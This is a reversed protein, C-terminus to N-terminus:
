AVNYIYAKKARVDLTMLEPIEVDGVGYVAPIKKNQAMALVHSFIVNHRVIVAKVGELTLDPDIDEDVILVDNVSVNQVLGKSFGTAEIAGKPTIRDENAESPLNRLPKLQVIYVLHDETVVFEIQVPFGCVRGLQNLTQRIAQDQEMTVAAAHTFSGSTIADHSSAAAYHCDEEGMWHGVGTLVGQVSQQYFWSGFKWDKENLADWNRRMDAEAQYFDSPKDGLGFYSELVGPMSHSPSSRLSDAGPFWYQDVKPTLFGAMKALHLYAYKAGCRRTFNYHHALIQIMYKEDDDRFSGTFGDIIDRLHFLANFQADTIRYLNGEEPLRSFDLNRLADTTGFGLHGSTFPIVRMREPESGLEVMHGNADTLGLRKLFPFLYLHEQPACEVITGSELIVGSPYTPWEFTTEGREQAALFEEITFVNYDSQNRLVWEPSIVESLEEVSFYKLLVQLDESMKIYKPERIFEWLNVDPALSDITDWRRQWMKKNFASEDDQDSDLAHLEYAHRQVKSRLYSLLTRLGTVRFETEMEESAIDMTFADPEGEIAEFIIRGELATRILSRDTVNSSHMFEEVKKYAGEYAFDRLIRTLGEAEFTFALTSSM